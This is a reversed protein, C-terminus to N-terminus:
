QLREYLGKKKFLAQHFQLAVTQFFITKLDKKLVMILNQM